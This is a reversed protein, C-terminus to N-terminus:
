RAEASAIIEQAVTVLRAMEQDTYTRGAKLLPDLIDNTLNAKQLYWHEAGRLEEAMLRIDPEGLIEPVVTTRFQYEIKNQAILWAATKKAETTFKALIDPALPMVRHYREWPAKVDMAVYDVLGTEVLDIVMQSNTGNTDLKVLFGREKIGAIIEPLDQHLTPEGGTIVVAELRGKRQDLFAWLDALQLAPQSTTNIVGAMVPRVLLPNHCYRCAFNCGVTFVIAAVKDPYDLLSIPQLGGIIM